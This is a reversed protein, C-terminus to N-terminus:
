MIIYHNKNKRNIGNKGYKNPNKFYKHIISPIMLSMEYFQFTKKLIIRLLNFNKQNRNIKHIEKNVLITCKILM